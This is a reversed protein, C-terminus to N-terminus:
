VDAGARVQAGMSKVLFDACRSALAVITSTPNGAGGSTMSSGDCVVLGPTDWVRHWQDIVGDEPTASMRATGMLHWGPQSFREDMPQLDLGIAGSAEAIEALREGGFELLARTNPHLDYHVNAAPLGSSDRLVPDLTVRNTAVPLDDAQIAAFVHRDFRQEFDEHHHRGWRAPRQGTTAGLASYAPGWAGGFTITVGNVFGRSPDTDYWEQCYPGAGFPGKYHETSHDFWLDALRYGHTMFYRGVNGHENGIGDPHAKSTSMLLTRPSGIGNASLVVLPAMVAHTSGTSVDIYEVGCAVGKADTLISSVRCGHRLDMGQVLAPQLYVAHANGRAHRPCGLNCMGCNNCAMRDERAETLIANDGPWWHVGMREMGEAVIRAYAGHAAQPLRPAEDRPPYAPDGPLGAIGIEADTKNYYPELDEYTIPWDIAGEFGHETGKLFDVPKQRHWFASYQNTSGGVANFLYPQFTGNTAVPFDFPLSRINPNFAWDRRMAFEWDPSLMPSDVDQVYPGQELCVVKAGSRTLTNAIALGAMGAGIIVVDPDTIERSM